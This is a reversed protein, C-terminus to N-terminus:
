NFYVGAVGMAEIAKSTGKVFDAMTTNFNAIEAMMKM